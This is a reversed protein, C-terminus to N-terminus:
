TDQISYAEPQAYYRTYNHHLSDVMAVFRYLPDDIIQVSLFLLLVVM